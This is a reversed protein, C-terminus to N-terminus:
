LEDLAKSGPRALFAQTSPSFRSLEEPTLLDHSQMLALQFLARSRSYGDFLQAIERDHNRVQSYVRLYRDHSSVTEDAITTAVDSLIQDCLRALARERLVKFTKWDSEPISM